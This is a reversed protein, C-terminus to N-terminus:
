LLPIQVIWECKPPVLPIEEDDNFRGLQGVRRYIEELIQGQDGAYEEPKGEKFRDKPDIEKATGPAAPSSVQPQSSAQAFPSASQPKQAGFPSASPGPAPAATQAQANQLFPNAPAASSQGPQPGFPSVNPTPQGPQGFPSPQSSAAAQFPNAQAEAPKSQNSGFPSSQVPQAQQGFPSAQANPQQGFPSAQAAPQQGFPSAQAASQQGFPSGGPKAAQGFPSASSAGPQAPQGLGTQGFAPKGFANAQQGVASPQGFPNATNPTSAQGFAPKQGLASAAGFASGAGPMSPQGFGSAGFAPKSFAAGGGLASPQGFPSPKAGLNSAAGFGSAAQGPNSPQGFAATTQSPNSPQGFAPQGFGPTSSQGFTATPAKMFPNAATQSTTSTQAQSFPNATAAAPANVATASSSPANGNAIDIRNPHVNAGEEIYRIAGDIDNLISQVQQQMKESLASEEQQAVPENGALRQSYYRVRLEEPSIEVAGEILQRPADRGPGYSSLPYIPRQSTLDNKMDVPDLHYPLSKPDRTSNVAGGSQTAPQNPRYRDGNFAGFRNNNAGGGFTGGSSRAGPHEFRCADGNRCNGRQYFTCVTM